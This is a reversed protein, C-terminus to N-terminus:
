SPKEFDFDEPSLNELMRDLQDQVEPDPEADAGSAEIIERAVYIPSDTRLALAIADSPRSDIEWTGEHSELVIRAHFTNDALDNVVVRSVGVDLEGLVNRLLDHTMPRPAEVGEIAMMISYAEYPGIWIPLIKGAEENKLILVPRNTNPDHTVVAVRMEMLDTKM